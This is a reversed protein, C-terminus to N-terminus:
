KKPLEGRLIGEAWPRRVEQVITWLADPIDDPRASVQLDGAQAHLDARARKDLIRKGDRSEVLLHMKSRIESKRFFEALRVRTETIELLRRAMARDEDDIPGDVHLLGNLLAPMLLDVAQSTIEDPSPLKRPM